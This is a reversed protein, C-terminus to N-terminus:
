LKKRDREKEFDGYKKSRYTLGLVSQEKLLMLNIVTNATEWTSIALPFDGEQNGGYKEILLNKIKLFDSYDAGIKDFIYQSLYLKNDFFLYEIYSNMGLLTNKEYFLLRDESEEVLESKESRKVQNRTQGWKTERFQSLVDQSQIFLLLITILIKIM